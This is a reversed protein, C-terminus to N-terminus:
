NITVTLTGLDRPIGDPGQAKIGEFYVKDNRNLRKILERAADPMYAGNSKFTQPTGRTLITIEYSNVSGKVPFEFNEYLVSLGQQSALKEKTMKGGSGTLEGLKPTPKPLPKVRFEIQGMNRTQGDEMEAVVSVVAKTGKVNTVTYQGNGKPILIGASISVRLRENPIGPVSVSIPNEIGMYMVNMNTASVTLAPRAAIFETEFPYTLMKGRPSRLSITGGWKIFGERSAIMKFKGQGKEVPLSDPKGNFQQRSMDFDGALITPRQTKSYAAIFVDAKYEEGVLVYNSQPIVKATVTDFKLTESNVASLLHSVVEAESNKVDSQLKSLITVSAALPTHFFNHLEWTPHDPDNKPDSTSIPLQLVARADTDVLNMMKEKYTNLKEKLERAIGESGDESEGIMIHTTVDYNDKSSVNALQMTDAVSQEIGETEKVLRKKLGEIYNYLENTLKRAEQAKSWYPTVRGPDLGKQFDFDAYLNDTRKTFSQNTNELGANVVIFSNLIEKSVNLALLATLVLYMMGIMKQRPTEKGGAM